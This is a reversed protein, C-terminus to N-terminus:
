KIGPYGVKNQENEKLKKYYTGLDVIQDITMPEQSITIKQPDEKSKRCTWVLTGSMAVCPGFKDIQKTVKKSQDLAFKKISHGDDKVVGSNSDGIDAAESAVTFSFTIIVSLKSILLRM